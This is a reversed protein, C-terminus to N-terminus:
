RGRCVSPLYTCCCGSGSGAPAAPDALRYEESDASGSIQWALGSLWYAGGAAAGPEVRYLLTTDGSYAQALMVTSLLLSVALLVVVRPKM